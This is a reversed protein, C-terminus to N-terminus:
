KRQRLRDVSEGTTPKDDATEPDQASAREEVIIEVAKRKDENLLDYVTGMTGAGIHRRRRRQRTFLFGVVLLVVLWTLARVSGADM